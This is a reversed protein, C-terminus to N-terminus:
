CRRPELTSVQFFTPVGNIKAEVVALDNSFSLSLTARLDIRCAPDANAQVANSCALAVIAALIPPRM